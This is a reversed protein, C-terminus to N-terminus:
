DLTCICTTSIEKKKTYVRYIFYNV